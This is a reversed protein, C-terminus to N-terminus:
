RRIKCNPQRPHHVPAKFTLAQVCKLFHHKVIVRQHANGPQAVSGLVHPGRGLDFVAQTEDGMTYGEVNM